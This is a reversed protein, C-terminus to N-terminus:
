KKARFFMCKRTLWISKFNIRRNIFNINTKCIFLSMFRLFRWNKLKLILCGLTYIFTTNKIFYFVRLRLFVLRFLLRIFTRKTCPELHFFCLFLLWERTMFPTNNTSTQFDLVAMLTVRLVLSFNKKSIGLTRGVAVFDM